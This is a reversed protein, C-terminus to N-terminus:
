VPHNAKSARRGPVPRSHLMTHSAFVVVKTSGHPPGVIGASPVPICAKATSTRGPSSSPVSRMTTSRLASGVGVLQGGRGASTWCCPTRVTLARRDARVVSAAPGEAGEEHRHAAARGRGGGPPAGQVRRRARDGLRHAAGAHAHRGRDPAGGGRAGRRRA